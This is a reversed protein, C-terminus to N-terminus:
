DWPTKDPKKMTFVSFGPTGMLQKLAAEGRKRRREQEEPPLKDWEEQKAKRHAELGGLTVSSVPIAKGVVIRKTM